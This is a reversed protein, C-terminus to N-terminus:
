SFWKFFTKILKLKNKYPAYRMTFDLWNGKKVIPKKHSFTDFSHKGHYFGIGSEGVGGFPLRHNGFQILTDNIVGSGFSYTNLVRTVFAKKNSFVYLSLPKEITNIINDIDDLTKFSLIPLVPGFIEHKMLESDLNPEDILTPSLYNGKKNATGGFIIKSDKILHILRDLNHENIIRPFDPSKSSDEGYSKVIEFKLAEILKQKITSKVILFDPSICTQGANLFKGWVLRRATLKLNISDDIICPSKGGLELTVPTLHKAAAIAVIKGVAVSGTFFVYDWKQALLETAVPIGGQVSAIHPEIFVKKIIESVLLSTHKTLESPKVVVTNGAALAMILPEMVLLFPYNWPAIILVCGYPESYISNRSPFNLLSPLVQKPKTWRHINEIALNITSIVLGFETLYTEFESKKFDKYLADYIDDERAVIEQKLQKLLIKRYSVDKTQHTKFFNKQVILLSPIDL